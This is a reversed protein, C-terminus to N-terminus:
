AGEPASKEPMAPRRRPSIGVSQARQRIAQNEEDFLILCSDEM